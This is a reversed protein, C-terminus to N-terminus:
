EGKIRIDMEWGNKMMRYASGYFSIAFMM